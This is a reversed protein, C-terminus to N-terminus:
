CFRNCPLTCPPDGTGRDFMHLLTTIRHVGILMTHICTADLSLHMCSSTCPLESMCAAHRQCFRSGGECPHRVVVFIRVHMEVHSEGSAPPYPSLVCVCCIYMLIIAHMSSAVELQMTCPCATTAREEHGGHLTCQWSMQYPHIYPHICM